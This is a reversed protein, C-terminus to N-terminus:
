DFRHIWKASPRALTQMDVIQSWKPEMLFTKKVEELFEESARQPEANLIKGNVAKIAWGVQPCQPM